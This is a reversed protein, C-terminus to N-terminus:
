SVRRKTSKHEMQTAKVLSEARGSSTSACPATAVTATVCDPRASGDGPLERAWELEERREEKKEDVIRFIAGLRREVEEALDMPDLGARAQRLEEKRWESVKPCALLRDCPTRPQDYKKRM